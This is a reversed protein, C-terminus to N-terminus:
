RGNPRRQRAAAGLRRGCAVRRAFHAGPDLVFAASAGLWGDGGGDENCVRGEGEEVDAAIQELALDDAEFLIEKFVSAEGFPGVM